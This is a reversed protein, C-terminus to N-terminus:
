IILIYIIIYIYIYIYLSISLPLCRDLAGGGGQFFVTFSNYSNNPSKGVKAEARSSAQVDAKHSHGVEYGSRLLGRLERFIFPGPFSKGSGNVIIVSLLKNKSGGGRLAPCAM